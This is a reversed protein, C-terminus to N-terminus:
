YPAEDHSEDQGPLPNSFIFDLAKELGFVLAPIDSPRYSPADKWEGSQADRYRRPSVTISRM